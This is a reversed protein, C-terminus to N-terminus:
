RASWKEFTKGNFKFAGNEHTGLWLGGKNDKYICFVTIDKSNVQVPYHTIKAGDYKWIGAHYTAIWLDNNDDKIISLYESLSGNKNGDLSGVSKVRNYFKGGPTSSSYISYRYDTNFWFDGNRDEAISRVGNSPGNHFETVDQELIWDFGSGNYRCAGSVATGFWINGKNDRYICYVGYPSPGNPYKRIHEEGPKSPPLKLSYLKSGDYRYVYGDYRSNKFWLDDPNLKWNNNDTMAETLTVFQTGNYRCVGKSTTFYINGHKDEKIEDVRSAPLGDKATFHILRQGDYKYVGDQWSGFWYTNKRDQYVVMINNSPETVTEGKAFPEEPKEANNAQEATQGSCSTFLAVIGTFLLLKTKM